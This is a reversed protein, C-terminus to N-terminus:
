TAQAYMAAWGLCCFMTTHCDSLVAAPFVSKKSHSLRRETAWPSGGNQGRKRMQFLDDARSDFGGAEPEHAQAQHASLRLCQLDHGLARVARHADLVAGRKGGGQRFEEIALVRDFAFIM